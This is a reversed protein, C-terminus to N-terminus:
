QWRRAPRQALKVRIEIKRDRLEAVGFSDQYDKFIFFGTGAELVKLYPDLNRRLNAFAEAAAIDDEYAALILTCNSGSAADSYDAAAAFRRGGLRLVDGDGLTYV